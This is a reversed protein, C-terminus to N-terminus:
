KYYTLFDVAVDKREDPDTDTVKTRTISSAVLVKLVYNGCYLVVVAYM